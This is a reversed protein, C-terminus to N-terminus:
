LGFCLWVNAAAQVGVVAVLLLTIIAWRHNIRQRQNRLELDLDNGRFLLFSRPDDANQECVRCGDTHPCWLCHRRRNSDEGL